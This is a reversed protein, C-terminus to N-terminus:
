EPILIKPREIPITIEINIKRNCLEEAHKELLHRQRTKTTSSTRVKNLAIKCLWPWFSDKNKLQGFIKYMEVITGQTIEDAIDESLTIRLVYSRLSGHVTEALRSLAEKDGNAAEEVLENYDQLKNM